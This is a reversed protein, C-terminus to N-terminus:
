AKIAGGNWGPHSGNPGERNDRNTKLVPQKEGKSRTDRETFRRRRSRGKSVEATRDPLRVVRETEFEPRLPLDGSTLKEGKWACGGFKRKAGKISVSKATM